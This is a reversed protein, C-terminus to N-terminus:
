HSIKVCLFINHFYFGCLWVVARLIKGGWNYEGFACHYIKWNKTEYSFYDEEDAIIVNRPIVQNIVKKYYLTICLCREGGLCKQGM